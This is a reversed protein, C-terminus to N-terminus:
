PESVWCLEEACDCYPKGEIHWHALFHAIRKADDPSAFVQNECVPNKGTICLFWGIRSPQIVWLHHELMTAKFTTM